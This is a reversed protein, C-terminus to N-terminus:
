RKREKLGPIRKVTNAIYEFKSKAFGLKLDEKSILVPANGPTYYYYKNDKALNIHENKNVTIIVLPSIQKKDTKKIIVFSINELLEKKTFMVKKLKSLYGLADMTKLNSQNIEELFFDLKANLPLEEEDCFMKYLRLLNGIQYSQEKEREQNLVEKYIRDVYKQFEKQTEESLNLCKLGNLPMDIKANVLDAGIISTLADASVIYDDACFDLNAHAAGYEDNIDKNNINNKIGLEKLFQSYIANFEYCVVLDDSSEITTIRNIDKHYRAIEGEQNNAYFVPDYSLYRCLKIYVYIAKELDNYNQNMEKYVYERLKGNLVVDYSNLVKDKYYTLAQYDIYSHKKIKRYRNVYLGMMLFREIVNNETLFNELIYAFKKNYIDFIKEQKLVDKFKPENLLFIKLMDKCKLTIEEGEVDITYYKNEVEKIFNSFMMSKKLSELRQKENDSLELKSLEIFTDVLSIKINGNIDGNAIYAFKLHAKKNKITEKIYDYLNDDSLFSNIFGKYFNKKEKLISTYEYEQVRYKQYEKKDLICTYKTISKLYDYGEIM